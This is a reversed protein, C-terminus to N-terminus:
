LNLSSDSGNAYSNTNANLQQTSRVIEFLEPEVIQVSKYVGQLLTEVNYNSSDQVSSFERDKEM